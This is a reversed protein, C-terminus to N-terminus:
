EGMWFMLVCTVGIQAVHLAQDVCLNICGVNAKAHDVVYHVAANVLVVGAFFPSDYFPLFTLVAWSLAHLMGAAVYDNKYKDDPYNRRWWDRQKLEALMGNIQLNFDAVVHLLLCILYTSACSM